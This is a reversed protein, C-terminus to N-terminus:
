VVVLEYFDEERLYRAALANLDAGPINRITDVTRRFFAEDLGNLVLNKWRGIIQFPGDLDGLLTGMLYNRVMQLEEEPIEEERLRRMEHYVEGIAAECVERGAETSVM